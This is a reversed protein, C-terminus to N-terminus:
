KSLPRLAVLLWRALSVLTPMRTQSEIFNDLRLIQFFFSYIVYLNTGFSRKQPLSAGYKVMLAERQNKAWLSWDEETRSFTSRRRLTLSQAATKVTPAALVNLAASFLLILLLSFM